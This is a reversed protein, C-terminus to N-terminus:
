VAIVRARRRAVIAAPTAVSSAAIAVGVRRSEPSM